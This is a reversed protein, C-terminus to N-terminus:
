SKQPPVKLPPTPQSATFKPLFLDRVMLNLESGNWCLRLWLVNEVIQIAMPLFVDKGVRVGGPIAVFVNYRFEKLPIRYGFFRAEFIAFGLQFLSAYM